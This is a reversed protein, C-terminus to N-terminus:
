EAPQVKRALVINDLYLDDNAPLIIGMFEGLLNFPAILSLTLLLNVIPSRTVTKKYIYGTM